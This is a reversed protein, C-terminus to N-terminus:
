DRRRQFEMGRLGEVVGDADFIFAVKAAATARDPISSLASSRAAVL